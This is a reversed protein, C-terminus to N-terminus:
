RSSSFLIGALIFVGGIIWQPSLLGPKSGKDQPPQPESM